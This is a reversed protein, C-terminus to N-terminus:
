VTINIYNIHIVAVPNILFSPDGKCQVYLIFFKICFFLETLLKCWQGPLIYVVGVTMQRSPMLLYLIRIHAVSLALVNITTSNHMCFYVIHCATESM